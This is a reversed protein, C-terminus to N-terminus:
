LNGSTCQKSKKLPGAKKRKKRKGQRKPTNQQIATMKRLSNPQTDAIPNGAFRSMPSPFVQVAHKERAKAPHSVEEQSEHNCRAVHRSFPRPISPVYLPECVDFPFLTKADANVHSISMESHPRLLGSNQSSLLRALFLPSSATRIVRSSTAMIDLSPSSLTFPPNANFSFYEPHRLDM